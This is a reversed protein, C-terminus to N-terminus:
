PSPCKSDDFVKDKLCAQLKVLQETEGPKLVQVGELSADAPGNSFYIWNIM